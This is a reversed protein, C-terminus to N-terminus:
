IIRFCGAYIHINAIHISAQRERWLMSSDILIENLLISLRSCSTHPKINWLYNYNLAYHALASANQDLSPKPEWSPAWTASALETCLPGIGHCIRPRASHPAPALFGGAGVPVTTLHQLLVDPKAPSRATGHWASMRTFELLLSPVPRRAHAPAICARGRLQGCPETVTITHSRVYSYGRIVVRLVTAPKSQARNLPANLFIVFSWHRRCRM